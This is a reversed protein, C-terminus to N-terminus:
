IYLACMAYLCPLMMYVACRSQIDNTYHVTYMSQVLSLKSVHRKTPKQQWKSYDDM